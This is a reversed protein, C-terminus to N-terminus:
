KMKELGDPLSVRPPGLLDAMRSINGVVHRPEDQLVDFVPPRGVSEGIMRALERMTVVDPGAVNVRTSENLSLSAEVARAADDVHIPNVKIGDEGQLSVPDGNKVANILRPILMSERQSPGYVFFFRLIVITVLSGYAEVLLEGCRKSALYYGLSNPAVVVDDERFEDEGYGYIGGSSAYVFRRVGSRQAWELLRATSGVNVEFIDRAGDPFDRFRLSQALHVVSDVGTPFASDDLGGALDQELWSVTESSFSPPRRGIVWVESDALHPLLGGGVLGTAGTILLRRLPFWGKGYSKEKCLAWLRHWQALARLCGSERIM